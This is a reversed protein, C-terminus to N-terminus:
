KRRPSLRIEITSPSKASQIKLWSVSGKGQPISIEVRRTSILMGCPLPTTINSRWATKRNRTFHGMKLFGCTSGRMWYLTLEVWYTLRNDCKVQIYSLTSYSDQFVYVICRADVLSVKSSGEVRNLCPKLFINWSNLLLQPWYYSKFFALYVNDYFM